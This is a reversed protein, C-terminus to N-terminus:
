LVGCNFLLVTNIDIINENRQLMCCKTNVNVALTVYGEKRGEEVRNGSERTEPM